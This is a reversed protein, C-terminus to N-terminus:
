SAPARDVVTRLGAILVDLCADFRDGFYSSGEGSAVADAVFHAFDTAAKDSSTTARFVAASDPEPVDAHGPVPSVDALLIGNVSSFFVNLVFLLRVPDLGTQALIGLMPAAHAVEAATSLPRTAMLVFVRPHAVALTRYAHGVTRLAEDWPRDTLDLELSLVMREHVGDILAAKNEVHNYLSMAQVGLKAGLARMSLAEMGGADVLELAATIIADKSLSQRRPAM